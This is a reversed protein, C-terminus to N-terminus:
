VITRAMALDDPLMTVINRNYNIRDAHSTRRDEILIKWITSAFYRVFDTLRLYSVVSEANYSVIPPLVSLNIDLPFRLERGIDPVGRLIDTGDITYINWAYETAVNAVVFVDNADRDEAAIAIAKNIFRHFNVVLLGKDNRKALIYYNIRLAKCMVTFVGKFPSDDDLIVLHCIGFKLLVYQMFHETLTTAIENPFPVIIIFHTMDCMINM